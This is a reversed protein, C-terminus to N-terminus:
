EGSIALRMIWIADVFIKICHVRSFLIDVASKAM